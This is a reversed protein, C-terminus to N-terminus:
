LQMAKTVMGQAFKIADDLDADDPHGAASQAELAWGRHAPKDLLAEILDPKVQGRCGFTGIIKTHSALTIAHHFATIALQGGRLSGHTAFLAVMKGEPINKLFTEAEKPVSGGQVPFGVFFVDYSDANEAKGLPTIEKDSGFIGAYIAHALKDTNGSESLFTVLMKM